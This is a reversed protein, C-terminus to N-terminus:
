SSREVLDVFVDELGSRRKLFSVVGIQPDELVLRLLQSEAPRESVVAVSLITVGNEFRSDVSTIWPEGLLRKPLDGPLGRIVVDFVTGSSGRLLDEIPAQAVLSGRNLIAVTDSVRQVDDLIHTSYFITTTEKLRVMIDLVDRRGLPDLASAPEDLILIEPRHIQAQAIGLRQREGGSLNGVERDAKGGLGVLDLVEDIEADVSRTPALPFFGRAYRLTERANLEDYFAPKQPLYGVRRRIEVSDRVVDYGLVTARGDTPGVLGLLIRMATTKGSGNPGLFGFISHRPVALDLRNLAIVEGFQKTLAVANIVPDSEVSM